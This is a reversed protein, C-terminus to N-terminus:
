TQMCPPTFLLLWVCFRRARSPSETHTNLGSICVVVADAIKVLLHQIKCVYCEEYVLQWLDFSFSGVHRWMIVSVYVIDYVSVTINCWNFQHDHNRILTGTVSWSVFLDRLILSGCRYQGGFSLVHIDMKHLYQSKRQMVCSHAYGM